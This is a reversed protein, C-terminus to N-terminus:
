QCGIIGARARDFPCATDRAIGLGLIIDAGNEAVVAAIATFPLGTAGVTPRNMKWEGPTTRRNEEGLRVVEVAPIGSEEQSSLFFHPIFL